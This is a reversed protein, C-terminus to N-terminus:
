DILFKFLHNQSKGQLQIFYVGAEFNNLDFTRNIQGDFSNFSATQIEQGVANFVHLTFEENAPLSGSMTFIGNSPNPFLSITSEGGLEEIDFTLLNKTLTDEMCQNGAILTVTYWTDNMNLPYDHEPNEEISTATGDGFDWVFNWANQSQNEFVVHNNTEYFVFMPIAEAQFVVEVSSHDVCNMDSTVTVGYMGTLNIELSADTTENENDWLYTYGAGDGAILVITGGSCVATDAPLLIAPLPYVTVEVTDSNQCGNNDTIMVWFEGSTSVTLNQTTAGQSWLYASSAPAHLAVNSGQCFATDLGLDVSPLPIETIEVTDSNICGNANIVEVWVTSVANIEISPITDGNSWLISAFNDVMLIISGGECFMDFPSLDVVPLPNVVVQFTTDVTTTGDSVEVTYMTNSGPSVYTSPVTDTFSGINASWAYSYPTTGGTVTVFLEISDGHCIASQGTFSTIVLNQATVNGAFFLAIVSLTLFTTKLVQILRKM